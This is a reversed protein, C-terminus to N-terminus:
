RVKHLGLAVDPRKQGGARICPSLPLITDQPTTDSAPAHAPRAPALVNTMFHVRCRQWTMAGDHSDSIVLKVCAPRAPRAQAPYHDLACRGGLAGIDMGLVERRGDSNVGVAAVVAVSVYRGNQRVLKV